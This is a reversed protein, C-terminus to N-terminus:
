KQEEKASLEVDLLKAVSLVLAVAHENDVITNSRLHCARITDEILDTEIWEPSGPPVEIEHNGFDVTEVAKDLDLMSFQFSSSSHLWQEEDRDFLESGTPRSRRRREVKM